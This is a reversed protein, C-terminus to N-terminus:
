KVIRFEIDTRDRHIYMVFKWRLGFAKTKMGKVDEIVTKGDEQYQFDATYKMGRVKKGHYEFAPLLQFSPQFKLDSIEGARVLLILELYRESERKSDFVIGDLETKRANFKNM